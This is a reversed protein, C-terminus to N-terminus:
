EILVIEKFENKNSVRSVSKRPILKSSIKNAKLCRSGFLSIYVEQNKDKKELLKILESVKM